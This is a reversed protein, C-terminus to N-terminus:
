IPDNTFLDKAFTFSAGTSGPNGVITSYDEAILSYYDLRDIGVSDLM